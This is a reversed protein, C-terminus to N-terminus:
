FDQIWELIIWRNRVRKGELYGRRIIESKVFIVEITRVKERERSDERDFEESFGRKEKRVM